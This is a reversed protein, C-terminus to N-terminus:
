PPPQQRRPLAYFIALAMNLSLSALASVYALAFSLLYTPPGWAYARTIADVASPDVDRRLLRNQHSAHRWLLNFFVAIVVFVGSYVMAAIRQDRHHIYDAVLATPFPVFTVGMLLVANLVLLTHDSRRIMTFLTHHNIWMIWITAFSTVFAFYAPWQDLLARLLAQRESLNHPVNISFVLLTIAVAFVGDSFAEIRGTEKADFQPSRGGAIM